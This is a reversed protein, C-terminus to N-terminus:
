KLRADFFDMYLDFVDQEITDPEFPEAGNRGMLSYGHEPHEFSAWTVDAGAESLWEHALAFIGQLHDDNRGLILLPTEIHEIRQMALPKDALSRVVEIDQLQLETGSADRPAKSADIGLFEIAAAESPVAAALDMVAVAKLIIEGSHSSGIAGIANANVYPLSRVHEVISIYDDSDLAPVSQLRRNSGSVDDVLLGGSDIQNYLDPVENRYSVFATAYGRELMLSMVGEYRVMSTEIKGVGDRGQGSGLLIIPFPGDGVPKRVGIPVYIEDKTLVLHLDWEIGSVPNTKQVVIYPTEARANHSETGPISQAHAAGACLVSALAALGLMSHNKGWPNM